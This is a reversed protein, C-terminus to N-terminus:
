PCTFTLVATSTTSVSCSNVQVFFTSSQATGTPSSCLSSLDGTSFDVTATGSHDTRTRLYGPIYNATNTTCDGADSSKKIFGNTFLEVCIDNLPLSDKTFTFTVNNFCGGGISVSQSKLGTTVAVSSGFPATSDPCGGCQRGNVVGCGNLIFVPSALAALMLIAVIKATLKM